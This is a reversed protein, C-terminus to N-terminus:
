IKMNWASGCKEFHNNEGKEESRLVGISRVGDELSSRVELKVLFILAIKGGLRGFPCHRRRHGASRRLCHALM